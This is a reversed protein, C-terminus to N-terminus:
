YGVSLAKDWWPIDTSNLWGTAEKLRIQAVIWRSGRAPTQSMEQVTAKIREHIQLHTLSSGILWTSELLHNYGDTSAGKITEFLAQYEESTAGKLDYSIMYM